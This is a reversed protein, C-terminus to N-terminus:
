KRLDIEEQYIKIAESFLTFDSDKAKDMEAYLEELSM